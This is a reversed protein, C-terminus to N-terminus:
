WEIDFKYNKKLIEATKNFVDQCDWQKNGAYSASAPHFVTFKYNNDNVSDKWDQAQKGMYIYVLGTNNWTLHDMLYAIFPRWLIFHQGIKGVVTTLATNVLLVGQNSWRKLDKDRSATVGNYVTRNIADLMFELSPQMDNTQSLSFAIGDAHGFGPYPDQGLIVVKLQDYPCEEFARFWNKMTPTFRKGDRSQKALTLIINDFDSSYIFGRLVRAWGSPELKAHIKDKIEDLNLTEGM